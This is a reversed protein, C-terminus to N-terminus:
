INSFYHEYQVYIHAYVRELLSSGIRLAAPPQKCAVEALAQEPLVHQHEGAGDAHDYGLLHADGDDRWNYAHQTHQEEPLPTMMRPVRADSQAHASGSSSAGVKISLKMTGQVSPTAMPPKVVVANANASASAEGRVDDERRRSVSAAHAAGGVDNGSDRGGGTGFFFDKLTSGWSKKGKGAVGTDGVAERGTEAEGAGGASAADSRGGREEDAECVADADALKARLRM